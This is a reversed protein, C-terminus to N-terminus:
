PLTALAAKARERGLNWAFPSSFGPDRAFRERRELLDARLRDAEAAPLHPLAAVLAPIADDPLVGLYEVDLDDYATPPVAETGILRAVNHEAVLSAPAIVNLSVLSLLGIVAMAHGIWRVRDTALFTALAVLTVAMAVISVAVYVRLETWGYAEQYLQLRLTASALVVITLVVLAITLALYARPRRVVHYDLAVLTGGALGAAAVLEFYGRRAYDSYTMGAATLTDLGGFLYALQLGVFLAFILAVAGLVVLAETVGLIRERALPTASAAAGLSAQEMAPLGRAAVTLLGGVLWAVGLAFLARGPLEGLDPIRIGLLQDIGRRFIPDASAFLVAFILVLPIALILGRGVPGLWVPFQRPGERRLPRAIRLARGTGALAAELVWAGMAMVVSASRRTVALGSFAAVSAGTFAAAGAMDLFAVFPDARVAVLMALVIAAAPLWADLPDPARGRRRVLWAGVLVLGTLLPVNIGAAPGDIAVEAVVGIALAAFLIRRALPRDM